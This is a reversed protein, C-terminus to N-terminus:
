AAIGFNPLHEKFKLEGDWSLLTSWNFDLPLKGIHTLSNVERHIPFLKRERYFCFYHCRWWKNWNLWTFHNSHHSLGISLEWYSDDNNLSFIWWSIIEKQTEITRLKHSSYKQQSTNANINEGYKVLKSLAVLSFAVKYSCLQIFATLSLFINACFSSFQSSLRFSAVM